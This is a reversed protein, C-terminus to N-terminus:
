GLVEKVADMVEEALAQRQATLSNVLEGQEWRLRKSDAIERLKRWGEGWRLAVYGLPPALLFLLVGWAKGFRKGCAIAEWIWGLLVFISGGILKFTSTQTDDPAVATAVPGALRYPIYGLISGALAFPFSIVLKLVLWCLARLHWILQWLSTSPELTWPNSIGLTELTNAYHRADQSFTELREPDTRKIEEYVSLLKTAWEHQESLTLSEAQPVTWTAIIPAAALLEANEAQLVVKDLSTAIKDTVARITQYEDAAYEEAYDSVDFPEGVVLLVSTRFLTKSEFWLGVPVVKVAGKWGAEKEAGLVMRAAGTRMPLLQASSHTTGEPCLAMAGGQALIARCRAFTVENRENADGRPGGPLGEDRRRYVPLAGFTEMLAKGFPNGFLTSKGLFSVRRDLGAMLVLPDLLGNPHNLVFVMSGGVPLKDGGRVEIRPYFLRILTFTAFRFFHRLGEKVSFVTENSARETSFTM